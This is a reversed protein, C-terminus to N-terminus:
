RKKLCKACLKAHPVVDLRARPIPGSCNTCVGFTGKAIRRLADEIERLTNTELSKFRSAMERQYNETGQDAVHTRHASLDGTSDPSASDMVEDTIRGQRLIRQKEALLAREYKVVERRNM